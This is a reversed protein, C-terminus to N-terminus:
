RKVTTKAASKTIQPVSTGAMALSNMMSGCAQFPGVLVSATAYAGNANGRARQLDADTAGLAKAQALNKEADDRMAVVSSYGGYAPCQAALVQASAYRNLYADKPSKPASVCGTLSISLIVPVILSKVLQAGALNRLSVAQM